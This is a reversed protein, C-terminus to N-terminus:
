DNEKDAAVVVLGLGGLLRQEDHETIRILQYRDRPLRDARVAVHVATSTGRAIRVELEPQGIPEDAGVCGASRHLGAEVVPEDAAHLQPLRLGALSQRDLEGGVEVLVRVSKDRRPPAALTIAIMAASASTLVTLNRQAVRPHAPPDFVDPLPTPLPDAPHSAVAVLCEHGGNVVVPLWPVLCLVEQTGGAAVNAYASGVLTANTRTVQLAPNAWYFDVRAGTAATDGVNELSAWLYAPQGAVPPGQPGEPSGGPVVWVSPSLYWHPDGDRILLSVAM